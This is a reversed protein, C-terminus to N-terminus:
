YDEEVLNLSSVSSCYKSNRTNFSLIKPLNQQVNESESKIEIVLKNDHFVNKSNLCTYRLNNDITMRAQLIANYYYKRQYLVHVNPLLSPENPFKLDILNLNLESKKESKKINVDSNRIKKEFIGIGKFDKGYFRLRYKSRDSIGLLNEYYSTFNVDDFYVSNVYREPFIDYWGNNIFTKIITSYLGIEAIFKKEFRWGSKNKQQKVMNKEM